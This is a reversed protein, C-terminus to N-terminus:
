QHPPYHMKRRTAWSEDGSLLTGRGEDNMFAPPSGEVGFAFHTWFADSVCKRSFWSRARLGTKRKKTMGLRLRPVQKEQQVTGDV